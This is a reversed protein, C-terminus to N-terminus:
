QSIEDETQGSDPFDDLQVMRTIDIFLQWFPNDDTFKGARLAEVVDTGDPLIAAPQPHDHTVISARALATGNM